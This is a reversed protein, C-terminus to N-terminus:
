KSAESTSTENEHAAAHKAAVRELCRIREEVPEAAAAFDPHRQEDIAAHLEDFLHRLERASVNVEEWDDRPVGSDRALYILKNLVINLEDLPRHAGHYDGRKIAKRIADRYTRIRPIAAIYDAPMDIDAETIPPGEEEHEHDHGAHAHGHGHDHDATGPSEGGTQSGNCGALAALCALLVVLVKSRPALAYM